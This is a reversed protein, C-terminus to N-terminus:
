VRGGPMTFYFVTGEGVQSEMWIRGGHREVIKKGIALGMGTGVYERRSHLRQFVLFIRESHGPDIGIGNDRVSFLWEQEKQVASVHVCPPEAGHFKVANGILNQFLQTLQTNDATIVPLPDHTVVAGSEKVAVQLNSLVQELVTECDVPRFEKGHTGVRSYALLDNILDKMRVAGDVAFAIFDDADADLKGKYRQGLLQVYSSVMRLPEQLDHSAVYAFQQLEDNSRALEQAKEELDKQAQRRGAVETQLKKNTENLEETRADVEKRLEQHWNQIKEVMSNFTRALMGIEDSSVVSARASLEGAEVQQATQSLMQIPRSLSASLTMSLGIILIMAILGILIVSKLHQRVHAFVEARDRKVVMGWRLESTVPIHRYAALVPVGRYDKASIIGEEGRAAFVAPRSTIENELPVAETGDALSHKLSALTKVAQNVLLVEGTQGLGGGTHLMPLIMDDTSMYAVLVPAPKDPGARRVHQLPRMILLFIRGSEPEKQLLVLERGESALARASLDKGVSRGIEKSETSIMITGTSPDLIILRDYYAYIRKVSNLYRLLSQYSENKQIETWREDASDGPRRYEHVVSVIESLPRQIFESTAVVETDDLREELWLMLREKKLDAVLNLNRLAEIENRKLEGRFDTFPVGYLNVLNIATLTLVFLLGFSFLMKGQLGFLFGKRGAAYAPGRVGEKNKVREM